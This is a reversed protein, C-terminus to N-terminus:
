RTAYRMVTGRARVSYAVHPRGQPDIALRVNYISSYTPLVEQRWNAGDRRLLVNGVMLAPRDAEDARCDFYGSNVPLSEPAWATGDAKALLTAGATSSYFCVYPTGDSLFFSRFGSADTATVQKDVWSGSANTAYHLSTSSHVWLAHVKGARDVYLALPETTGSNQGQMANYVEEERAGGADHIGLKLLGTKSYSYTANSAGTSYLAYRTDNASFALPMTRSFVSRLPAVSRVWASGDYSSSEGQENQVWSVYPVNKSNLFLGQEGSAANTRSQQWGGPGKVQYSYDSELLHVAQGDAQLSKPYGYAGSKLTEYRWGSCVGAASCSDGGSCSGCSGGCSDSGCNKGDCRAECPPFSLIGWGKMSGVVGRVRGDPGTVADEASTVWIAGNKVLAPPYPYVEWEGLGGRFYTTFNRYIIKPTGQLDVLAVPYDYSLNYANIVFEHSIAGDSAVRALYVGDDVGKAAVVGYAISVSGDPAAALTHAFLMADAHLVQSSWAGTLERRAYLATPQDYAGSSVAQSNREGAVLHLRGKTDFVLQVTLFKGYIRADGVDEAIWKSGSPRAVVVKSRSTDIYGVSVEGLRDVIVGVGAGVSGSTAVLSRQFSGSADRTAFRVDENTPDQYAIAPQGAPTLALAVHCGRQAVGPDVTEVIWGALTQHLYAVDGNVCGAVHVKGAGDVAMTALTLADMPPRALVYSGPLCSGEFCGESCDLATAQYACQENDCSGIAAYGAVSTANACTAAPARNCTTTGCTPGQCRTGSCGGPCPLDVYDYHCNGDQCRGLATYSRLADGGVCGGAPPAACTKGLCPDGKCAGAECGHPCTQSIAAYTCSGGACSGTATFTRLTASDQCHAAPPAVCQKGICPDGVCSGSACGFPCTMEKADYRCGGGACSGQSEFSRLTLPDACVNDPPSACSKGACPDGVCSGAACGFPCTMVKKTYSCGEVTCRGPSEFVALQLSGTCSAEPPKNCGAACPGGGGEGVFGDAQAIPGDHRKPGDSLVAGDGARGDAKSAGDNALRVDAQAGADNSPRADTRGVRTDGAGSEAQAGDERAFTPPSESSCGFLPSFLCGVSLGILWRRPSRAAVPLRLLCGGSILRPAFIQHM